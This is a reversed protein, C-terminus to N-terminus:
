KGLWPSAAEQRSVFQEVRQQQEPVLADTVALFDPVDDEFLVSPCQGDYNGLNPRHRRYGVLDRLEPPFARAVEPPYTLWMNEYPKLWGLCYSVIIGRRSAFTRNAGGGHLTSGLFLLADGPGIQPSVSDAVPLLREGLGRHSGPWVITGGNEPTFPTLPWMINLLYETRGKEGAWMDQDRHPVQAGAGPHLEIAQTLNLQLSDCFPLLIQEAIAVILPHAVLAAAGRSRKLLGHFRKSRPGSFPGQAFPTRAFRPSLESDLDEVQRAPLLGGVVCYGDARLESAWGSADHGSRALCAQM